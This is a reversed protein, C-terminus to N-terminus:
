NPVHIFITNVSDINTSPTPTPTPTPNIVVSIYVPDGVVWPTPAAQILTVNNETYATGADRFFFGTGSNTSPDTDTDTWTDFVLGPLQSGTPSSAPGAGVPGSYIATSGNQTITITVSQGTFGSFYDTRDVGNADISNWYIGEVNPAGELINPDTAGETAGGINNSIITTGSYPVKYPLVVLNFPYGTVPIPSSTVSPTISPTLSPIPTQTNTPTPTPTNSISITPTPSVCLERVVIYNGNEDTIYNGNEDTLYEFCSTESPTPTPTIEGSDILDSNGRIVINYEVDSNVNYIKLKLEVRGDDKLTKEISFNNQRYGNPLTLLGNVEFTLEGGDKWEYGDSPKLYVMHLMYDSSPGSEGNVTYPNEDFFNDGQENEPSWNANEDWSYILNVSFLNDNTTPPTYSTWYGNNLVWDRIETADNLEDNTLNLKKFLRIFSEDTLDSTRSFAVGAPSGTKNPQEFDHVPKAIVYGIEEDPGMWWKVGGIDAAYTQPDVGVALNGFQETGNITSGTNYAFPRKLSM